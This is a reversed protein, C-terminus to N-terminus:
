SASKFLRDVLARVVRFRELAGFVYAGLGVGGIAAIAVILDM